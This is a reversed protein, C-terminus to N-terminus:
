MLTPAFVNTQVEAHVEAHFLLQIILIIKGHNQTGSYFWRLWDEPCTVYKQLYYSVASLLLLQWDSAYFSSQKLNQTM